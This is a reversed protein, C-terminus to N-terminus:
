AVEGYQAACSTGAIPGPDVPLGAPPDVVIRHDGTIADMCEDAASTSMARGDVWVDVWAGRCSACQDEVILYRRLFPAYLVTGPAWPAGKGVAATIPDDFTGTGAAEEHVTPYAIEASGPPDNDGYSYGTFYATIANDPM